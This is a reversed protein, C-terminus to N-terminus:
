PQKGTNRETTAPEQKDRSVGHLHKTIADRLAKAQEITLDLTIPKGSRWANDALVRIYEGHDLRISMDIRV